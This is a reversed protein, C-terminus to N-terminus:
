ADPDWAATCLWAVVSIAISAIGDAAYHYRGYITATFVVVAAALFSLWVWRREPIARLLGFASSFAVAVHGSPFVSTSIDCHDLLWVNIHRWLSAAHPLDQNPFAL